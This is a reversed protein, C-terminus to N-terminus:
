ESLLQYKKPTIGTIQKFTRIFSSSHSFGTAYAIEQVSEADEKQLMKCAESIRIENLFNIYTKRTRKKFYRCFAPVSMHALHAVQALQIDESFHELTYNYIENLKQGEAESVVESDRNGSIATGSHIHTFLDLLQLFLQIQHVGESKYIAEIVQTLLGAANAPVYYGFRYADIWKSVKKLEPLDLLGSISQHGGFFITKAHVAKQKIRKPTRDSKFIHPVNAGVLVVAGPHFPIVSSGAILSGSGKLIWTIQAEAHQHLHPYFQTLQEEQLIISKDKPVPITFPIVKM